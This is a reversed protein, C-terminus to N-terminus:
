ELSVVKFLCKAPILFLRLCGIEIGTGTRTPAQLNNQTLEM